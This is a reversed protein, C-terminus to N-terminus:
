FGKKASLFWHTNINPGVTFLVLDSKNATSTVSYSDGSAFTAAGGFTVTRGGTNDQQLVISYSQGVVGGSLNITTNQSLPNIIIRDLGTVDVNMTATDEIVTTRPALIQGITTHKTLNSQSIPLKDAENPATATPLQHIQM